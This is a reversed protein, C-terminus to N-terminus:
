YRLRTKQIDLFLDLAKEKSFTEMLYYRFAQGEWHGGLDFAMYKGIVLSDVATWKKPEYGVLMFEIPLTNDKKAQEMYANVGDAYWELYQKM